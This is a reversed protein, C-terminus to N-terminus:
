HHPDVEADRVMAVVKWEDNCLASEGIVIQDPFTWSAAARENQVVRKAGQLPSVRPVVARHRLRAQFAFRAPGIM